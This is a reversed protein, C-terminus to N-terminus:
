TYPHLYDTVNPLVHTISLLIVDLFIQNLSLSVAQNISEVSM